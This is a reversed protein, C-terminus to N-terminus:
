TSTYRWEVEFDTFVMSDGTLVGRVYKDRLLDFAKEKFYHLTITSDSVAYFGSESVDLSRGSCDFGSTGVFSGDPSLVISGSTVDCSFENWLSDYLKLSTGTSTLAFSGGAYGSSMSEAHFTVVLPTGGSEAAAVVVNEGHRGLSWVADVEGDADTLFETGVLGDGATVSFKVRVGPVPRGAADSVAVILQIPDGPRGVRGDGSIKIIQAPPVHQVPLKPLEPKPLEPEPV